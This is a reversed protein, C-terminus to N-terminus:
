SDTATSRTFFPGRFACRGSLAKNGPMTRPAAWNIKSACCSTTNKLGNVGAPHAVTMDAIFSDITKGSRHSVCAGWGAERCTQVANITETLAVSFEAGFGNVGARVGVGVDIAQSQSSFFLLVLGLGVFKKM